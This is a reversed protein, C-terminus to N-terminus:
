PDQLIGPIRVTAHMANVVATELFVDALVVITKYVFPALKTALFGLANLLPALVAM